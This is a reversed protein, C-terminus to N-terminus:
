YEDNQYDSYQTVIKQSKPRFTVTEENMRRSPSITIEESASAQKQPYEAFSNEISNRRSPAHSTNKLKDTKFTFNHMFNMDGDDSDSSLVKASHLSSVGSRTRSAHADINENTPENKRSSSSSREPHNSTSSAKKNSLMHKTVNGFIIVVLPAVLIMMLKMHPSIIVNTFIDLPDIENLLQAITEKEKSISDTYGTVNLWYIESKASLAEIPRMTGIGINTIKKYFELKNEYIIQSSLKKITKHTEQEERQHAYQSYERQHQPSANCESNMSTRSTAKKPSDMDISIDLTPTESNESSISSNCDQVKHPLSTFTNDSQIKNENDFNYEDLENIKPLNQRLISKDNVIQLPTKKVFFTSRNFDKIVTDSEIENLANLISSDYNNM